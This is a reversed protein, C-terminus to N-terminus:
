DHALTRMDPHFPSFVPMFFSEIGLLSATILGSGAIYEDEEKALPEGASVLILLLTTPAGGVVSFSPFAM